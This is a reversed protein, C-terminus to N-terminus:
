TDPNFSPQQKHLVDGATVNYLGGAPVFLLPNGWADLVLSPQPVPSGSAHTVKATPEVADPIGEMLQSARFQALMTKNGSAQLLMGIVLQTNAIGDSDYRQNNNPTENVDKRVDGPALAADPEPNVA